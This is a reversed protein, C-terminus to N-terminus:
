WNCEGHQLTVELAPVKPGKPTNPRWPHVAATPEYRLPSILHAIATRPDCPLDIESALGEASPLVHNDVGV